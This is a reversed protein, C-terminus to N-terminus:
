TRSWASKGTVEDGLIFYQETEFTGLCEEDVICKRFDVKIKGGILGFPMRYKEEKSRLGRECCYANGDTGIYIMRPQCYIMKGLLSSYKERGERLQEKSQKIEIKFWKPIENPLSDEFSFVKMKWKKDSVIDLLEAMKKWNTESHISLRIYMCINTDIQNLIWPNSGNTYIAIEGVNTGVKNILRSLDSWLTPEGGSFILRDVWDLKKIFELYYIYTYPEFHIIEGSFWHCSKCKFNCKDSVQFCIIKKQSPNM